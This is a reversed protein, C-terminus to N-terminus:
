GNRLRVVDNSIVNFRTLLGKVFQDRLHFRQIKGSGTLPWEKVYIWHAPTKQPSLRERCFSVLEDRTPKDAADSRIFCAVIEGWKEDPIGVVCIENIAPHELMANEIEAPFLNEGGRIIMEKVRGTVAVYGRADMRGLDGTHLWGEGDITAATAEPNDNYGLMNMYGRACIEGVEGVPVVKNTETNLIAIETQPMPQGVTTSADEVTDDGYVMTLLPCTETQGYIIQLGVGFTDRAQKVLEPAVMSGGSVIGKMSSMDRPEVKNAEIMGQIMTPVGLFHTAKEQEILKNMLGPDFIPCLILTGVMNVTGLVSVACGGTHFLPMFSLYVDGKSVGMREHHLRSNNCLGRHHLTAGKPFGTTGSTYQIQAADMPDVDPFPTTCDDGAYFAAEDQMDIVHAIADNDATVQRAIDGMPNGRFSEVFYLAKASSQDLVYAVERPQFSPNVTVLTVGTLGAAMEILIWEPINPSWVAIRDGKQHRSMFARALREADALLDAYSWVRGIDGSLTVEKLAVQDPAEAAAERLLDGVTQDHIPSSQQAPFYSETLTVDFM